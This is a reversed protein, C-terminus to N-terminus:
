FAQTASMQAFKATLNEGHNAIEARGQHSVIFSKVMICSKPIVMKAGGQLMKLTFAYTFAQATGNQVREPKCYIQLQIGLGEYILVKDVRKLWWTDWTCPQGRTFCFISRAHAKYPQSKCFTNRIFTYITIFPAEWPQNTSYEPVQTSGHHDFMICKSTWTWVVRTSSLLLTPSLNGSSALETIITNHPHKCQCHMIEVIYCTANTAKNAHCSLPLVLSRSLESVINYEKM